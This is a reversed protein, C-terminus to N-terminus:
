ADEHRADHVADREAEECYAQFAADNKKSWAVPKGKRPGRAIRLCWQGDLQVVEYHKETM